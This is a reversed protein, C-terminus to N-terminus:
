ASSSALFRLYDALGKPLRPESEALAERLSEVQDPTPTAFSANFKQNWRALLQLAAGASDSM